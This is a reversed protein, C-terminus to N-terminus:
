LYKPCIKHEKILIEKTVDWGFSVSFELGGNSNSAKTLASTNIDYSIIVELNEKKIGLTVFFADNVRNYIGSKLEVARNLIYAIGSGIIFEKDQTQSSVYFAPSIELKSAVKKFYTSHAIFKRSLLVEKNSTLSQEPRNLHYTSIGLLFSSSRDLVNYNLIGLGIDLFSFQTNQLEEVDFFVLKDYNVSRQYVATHMSISLLNDKFELSKVISLALGDTSFDSDGAVDNLITAALSISKYINKANFSLCFTNFPKSVSAWQSRRQLQIEYDNKQISLLSPNILSKNKDFQSFHIDQSYLYGSM